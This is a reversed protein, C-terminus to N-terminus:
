LDENREHALYNKFRYRFWLISVRIANKLTDAEQRLSDIENMKSQLRFFHNQHFFFYIELLSWENQTFRHVLREFFFFNLSKRICTTCKCIFCEDNWRSENLGFWKIWTWSTFGTIENTLRVHYWNHKYFIFIFDFPLSSYTFVLVAVFNDITEVKLCVRFTNSTFHKFQMTILFACCSM